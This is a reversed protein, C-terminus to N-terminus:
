CLPQGESDLYNNNANIEESEVIKDEMNLPEGMISEFVGNMIDNQSIIDDQYSEELSTFYDFDLPENEIFESSSEKKIFPSKNNSKKIVSEMEDVESYYDYELFNDKVGLPEIRKYTGVNSPLNSDPIYRYYIYNNGDRKAIYNFFDVNLNEEDKSISIAIEKDYSSSDKTIKVTLIEKPKKNEDYFEISSENKIEPVLRRNDLHNYIYQNIFRYKDLSDEKVLNNLEEIYNPIAKRISIPALHIFSNPNFSFGNRYYGYLFLDLALNQIEPEKNYLLSTWDRMYRERLTTSLNGVNYFSLTPIPNYKTAKKPRLRRILGNEKLEPYKSELEKFRSIFNNIFYDRKEKNSLQSDKGFFDIKSMYFVPIESYISNITKVDLIGSKTRDRMIDIIENYSKSVEPFYDKFLEETQTIGLTYFAQIYSMPSKRLEERITDLNGDYKLNYMLDANSLPFRLNIALNNEYDIVKKIKIQTDAINPGAGANQTDFRTINVLEKLANSSELIKKFLMGVTLQNKYFYAIDPNSTQNISNINKVEKEIMINKALDEILFEQNDINLFDTLGIEYSKNQYIKNIDDIISEVSKGTKNKLVEKSIQMIIPQRMLIGIELANYGLRSLLMSVDATFTNQNLVSLVPDKANDVSAALFGANNRSIFEGKDNNINHLSSYIKGNFKFTGFKNLELKTNQMIAHNANHNAYIGILKAGTMNQRHFYIQTNPSLSELNSNDIHKELEKITLKNLGEIISGKNINFRDRIESESYKDLISLIRATKKQSDFGGPNLIKNVTDEHTLVSWIIDILMNNRAEISQDKPDKTHDYQVKKFIPKDLLYKEKNNKFWEKFEPENDDLTEMIDSNNFIGIINSIINNEKNFDEKAKKYNYIIKKFEPIMIYLKDVDFDSGSLTTIEAPLMISSGNQQPLFGKIYLPVMSYKDETPVRTGILKRLDEPLKNINLVHSGEKMFSEFMKQSYAPLYCELYKIRKKKGEGEFVIKLDESVGYGTTQIVAGGRIKQKTIRSKIISNLLNQIRQSQVPEFLPINFRENKDLTVSKLLDLNYKINGKIEEKLIKELKKPNKFIEEIDQYNDIINEIIINHYLSKFEEKNYKKGNIEFEVGDSIDAEILKRIQTGFLQQVDILHEPTATQIGYDEYSVEHVVNKNLENNPFAKEKLHNYIDNYSELNNIDVVGQNGVKVASEFQIVDINNDEMFDNIARLKESKGLNGSLLAHSALLLFESNKNQIGIKILEGNIGSDIAVQTYLFPKKTQWIVDFDKADWIGEKFNKFAQEQKIDWEGIMTMVSRYSSLSRYAQADAVNVEKFKSIIDNKEYNSLRDNNNIIEEIDEISPSIIINDKLTITREIERGTLENNFTAKTNLRMAPSHIEKYRKQFDELNKYYALDTVTLQIINATALMSNYYYERLAEKATNKIVLANQISNTNPNNITSLYNIINNFERNAISDHIPKNFKFANLVREMDKTWNKDLIEKSLELNKAIANSNKIHNTQKLHKYKSDDIAEMLGLDNWNAYTNEFSDEIIDQLVEKIFSDIDNKSGEELLEQIKDLFSKNGDFRLYNLSPFFKFESGGKKNGIIDFNSIPSISTNGNQMENYRQRVLMIRDYEQWVVDMLKSIIVDKYSLRNGNEDFGANNSTYKRFRIFEASTSDSLIPVHYWAWDIDNKGTNPDGYYESLLVIIYDLSSWDEYNVKDHNLLVKHQLGERIRNDNVIQNLWDSRFRNEEKNYFWNFQKFEKDIFKLFRNDNKTVNQLQKILKGLYNPTVHSYYTKGNEYISSEIADETVESLLKAIQSYASDYENLLDIDKNNENLKSVGSYIIALSQFTRIIPDVIEFNENKEINNFAKLLSEKNNNIGVAQLLKIIDNITETDNLLALREETNLNSFKDNLKNVLKLNELAKEPLLDGNKDYISDRNFVTGSEYNDRWNNIIYYIGESKNVSITKISYTGDPNTEKKQIWYQIFDKRFNHYFKSFLIENNSIVDIIEQVWPKNVALEELMPILDSSDIMNKLKDILTAHVYEADLFRLNGLDDEEYFGENDLKPINSIIKRIEKSLSNHSGVTRYNLMWNDKPSNEKFNINDETSESTNIDIKGLSDTNLMIGESFILNITSEEALAKFNDIIKLYEQYKYEAKKTAKELAEEESFREEPSIIGERIFNDDQTIIKDYETKIRNDQSDNIYSEFVSYINKFIGYPTIEKLVQQENLSNLRDSLYQKELIDETNDILNELERRKEQEITKLESSFMRSILSARDRRKKPSMTLDLKSQEELTIERIISISKKDEEQKINDEKKNNERLIKIFNGLEEVNPYEDISKNEKDQWLAILNGISENTENPFQKAIEKIATNIVLCRM